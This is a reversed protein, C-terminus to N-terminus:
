VHVNSYIRPCCLDYWTLVIFLVLLLIISHYRVPYIPRLRTELLEPITAKLCWFSTHRNDKKSNVPVHYTIGCDMRFFCRPISHQYKEHSLQNTTQNGNKVKGYIPNCEDDWNVIMNKLPNKGWGGVLNSKCKELCWPFHYLIISSLQIWNTNKEIPSYSFQPSETEDHRSSGGTM